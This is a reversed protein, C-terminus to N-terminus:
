SFIKTSEVVVEYVRRGVCGAAETWVIRM